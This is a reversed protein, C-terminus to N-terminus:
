ERFDNVIGDFEGWSCESLHHGESVIFEEIQESDYEDPVDYIHL